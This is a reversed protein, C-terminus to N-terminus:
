PASSADNEIDDAIWPATPEPDFSLALIHGHKTFQDLHQLLIVELHLDRGMTELGSNVGALSCNHQLCVAVVHRCLCYIHM